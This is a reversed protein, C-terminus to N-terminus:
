GLQAIPGWNGGEAVAQWTRGQGAGKQEYPEKLTCLLATRRRSTKRAHM